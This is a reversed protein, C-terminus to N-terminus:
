TERDTRTRRVAGPVSQISSVYSDAPVETHFPHTHAHIHAHAYTPISYRNPLFFYWSLIFLNKRDFAVSLIVFHESVMHTGVKLSWSLYKSLHWLRFSSYCIACIKLLSKLVFLSILSPFFDLQMTHVPRDCTFRTESKMETLEWFFTEVKAEEVKM